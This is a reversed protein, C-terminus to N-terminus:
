SPDGQHVGKRSSRYGNRASAGGGSLPQSAFRVFMCMSDGGGWGGEGCLTTRFTNSGFSVFFCAIVTIIELLCQHCRASWMDSPVCCERAVVNIKTEVPKMGRRGKKGRDDNMCKM